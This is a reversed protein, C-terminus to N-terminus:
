TPYLQAVRVWFLLATVLGEERSRGLGLSLALAVGFSFPCPRAWEFPLAAPFDCRGCQTM